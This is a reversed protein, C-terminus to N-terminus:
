GAALYGAALPRIRTAERLIQAAGPGHNFLLDLSSCGPVFPAFTQRYALGELALVRTPVGLRQRDRAASAELALLPAEGAERWLGELTDPAGPLASGVVVNAGAGLWRGTWRTTAVALAGLSPWPQALLAEVEPLVHEAFPAMGYATRLAHVHKRRWGDRVIEVEALPRQRGSHRRPVSLWQAGGSAWVRARNHASQRSFPLTDALVVREAALLLAAVEPTPFFEPPRLATM